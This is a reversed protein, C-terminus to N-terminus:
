AYSTSTSSPRLACVASVNMLPIWRLMLNIDVLSWYTTGVRYRVAQMLTIFTVSNPTGRGVRYRVAQM